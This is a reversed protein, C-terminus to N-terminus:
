FDYGFTTEKAEDYIDKAEKLPLSYDDRLEKVIPLMSGGKAIMVRAKDVIQSRPLSMAAVFERLIEYGISPDYQAAIEAARLVTPQDTMTTTTKM